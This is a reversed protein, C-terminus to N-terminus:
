EEIITIDEFNIEVTELLHKCFLLSLKFDTSVLHAVIMCSWINKQDGELFLRDFFPDEWLLSIFEEETFPREFYQDSTIWFGIVVKDKEHNIELDNSFASDLENIKLKSIM